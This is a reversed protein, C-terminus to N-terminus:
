LFPRVHNMPFWKWVVPNTFSRGSDLPQLLRHTRGSNGVIDVSASNETRDRPLFYSRGHSNRTKYRETAISFYLHQQTHQLMNEFQETGALCYTHPIKVISPFSCANCTLGEIDYDLISSRRLPLIVLIM